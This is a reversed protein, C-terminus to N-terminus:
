LVSQVPGMAASCPVVVRAGLFCVYYAITGSSRSTILIQYTNSFCKTLLAEWTKGWSFSWTLSSPANQRPAAGPAAGVGPAGAGPAAFEPAGPSDPAAFGVANLIIWYYFMCFVFLCLVFIILITNSIVFIVLDLLM